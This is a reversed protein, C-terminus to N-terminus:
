SLSPWFSILITGAILRVMFIMRATAATANVQKMLAQCDKGNTSVTQAFATQYFGFALAVVTLFLIKKM